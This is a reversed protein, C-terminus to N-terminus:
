HGMSSLNLRELTNVIYELTKEMKSIRLKMESNDDHITTVKDIIDSCMAGIDDVSNEMSVFSDTLFELKEENNMDGSFSKPLPPYKVDTSLNNMESQLWKAYTESIDADEAINDEAARDILYDVYNDPLGGLPDITSDSITGNTHNKPILQLEDDHFCDESVLHRFKKMEEEIDDDMEKSLM